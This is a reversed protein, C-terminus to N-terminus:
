APASSIEGSSPARFGLPTLPRRSWVGTSTLGRIPSTAASRTHAMPAHSQLRGRLAAEDVLHPVLATVVDVVHTKDQRTLRLVIIGAYSAPPEPMEDRHVSVTSVESAAWGSGTTIWVEFDRRRSLVTPVTSGTKLILLRAV